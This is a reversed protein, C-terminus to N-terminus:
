LLRLKFNVLGTSFRQSPLSRASRIYYTTRKLFLAKHALLSNVLECLTSLHAQASQAKSKPSRARIVTSMKTHIHYEYDSFKGIKKRTVQSTVVCYYSRIIFLYEVLRLVLLVRRARLTSVYVYM